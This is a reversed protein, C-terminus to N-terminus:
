AAGELRPVISMAVGIVALNCWMVLVAAGAGKGMASWEPDHAAPPQRWWAMLISALFSHLLLLLEVDVRVLWALVGWTLAGSALWVILFRASIRLWPHAQSMRQIRRM